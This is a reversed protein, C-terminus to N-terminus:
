TMEDLYVPHDRNGWRIKEIKQQFKSLKGETQTSGLAFLDYALCSLM